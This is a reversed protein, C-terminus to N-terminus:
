VSRREKVHDSTRLHLRRELKCEFAVLQWGASHHVDLHALWDLVPAGVAIGVIQQALYVDRLLLALVLDALLVVETVEVIVRIDSAGWLEHDSREANSGPRERQEGM